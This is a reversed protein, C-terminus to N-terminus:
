HVVAIPLSRLLLDNTNCITVIYTGSPLSQTSLTAPLISITQTIHNCGMMDTITIRWTAINHENGRVILEDMVPNPYIAIDDSEDRPTSTLRCSQGNYGPFYHAELYTRTVTVFSDAFARRQTTNFRIASYLEMQIADITGGPRSGHQLTNYGGNFYPDDVLPFPDQQSPVGPFGREAFLTGLGSDGRLLDAHSRNGLNTTALNQISSVQRRAPTNIISDSERLQSGFLLYGYEIRQKTHGHGHLDIFLGRSFQRSVSEKAAAVFSHYDRWYVEAATNSDTAEIVDRNMDLKKRHLLNYIIHPYCGTRRYYSERIDRALQQTYSDRLYSCGQCSRDPIESPELIGDHPVSIILPSDGAQYEIYRNTGFYTEGSIYTQASTTMSVLVTALVFALFSRPDWM